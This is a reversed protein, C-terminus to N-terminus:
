LTAKCHVIMQGAKKIFTTFDISILCHATKTFVLLFYILFYKRWKGWLIERIQVPRIQLTASCDLWISIENEFVM